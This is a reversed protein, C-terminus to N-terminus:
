GSVVAAVGALSKAAGTQARAGLQGSDLDLLAIEGTMFNAIVASQEHATLALTAWGFDPLPLQRLTAGTALDITHLAAGRLVFLTGDRGFAMGFFMPPPGPPYPPAFSQLDPLQSRRELDYRMLRPGTESCYVLIHGSATVASMTVGLFGAMGGHTETPYEELLKGAASFRYVHGEGFRQTGPVHPITTKMRAKVRPSIESGTVHEGLLISGDRLFNVNSFARSPFEERVLIRGDRHINLVLHAHTDFAWLVGDPAFKLGTVLHTTRPLWIEGKPVLASDFHLIRGRGAHDDHADNLLTAGALIDGQSWPQFPNSSM